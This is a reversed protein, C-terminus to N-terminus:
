MYLTSNYGQKSVFKVNKCTRSVQRLSDLNRLIGTILENVYKSIM